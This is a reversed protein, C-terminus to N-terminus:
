QERIDRIKNEVEALKASLAKTLETAREFKELGEEINPEGQEFWKTIAELEEFGARVDIDQKKKPM